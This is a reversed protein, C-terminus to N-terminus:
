LKKMFYNDNWLRAELGVVSDKEYKFYLFPYSQAMGADPVARNENIMFVPVIPGSNIQYFVKDMKIFFKATDTNLAYNGMVKKLKELNKEKFPHEKTPNGDPYLLSDLTYYNKEALSRFSMITPVHNGMGIMMYQQLFNKYYPHHLFFDIRRKSLIKEDFYDESAWTTNEMRWKFFDLTTNSITTNMEELNKAVKLYLVKLDRIIPDFEEPINKSQVMLTNFGESEIKVSAYSTGISAYELGKEGAYDKATLEGRMIKNTMTDIFMYFDLVGEAERAGTVLESQIQKLTVIIDERDKQTENYNDIKVAVLISLIVLLSEGLAYALYKYIGSDKRVASKLLDRGMKPM